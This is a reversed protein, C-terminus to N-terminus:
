QWKQVAQEYSYRTYGKTQADAKQLARYLMEKISQKHSMGRTPYLAVKARVQVQGHNAPQIERTGDPLEWVKQGNRHEILLWGFSRPHGTRATPMPPHQPLRPPKPFPGRFFSM